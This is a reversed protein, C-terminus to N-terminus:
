ASVTSPEPSGGTVKRLLVDFLALRGVQQLEGELGPLLIAFVDVVDEGNCVHLAETIHLGLQHRELVHTM